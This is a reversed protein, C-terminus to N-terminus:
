SERGLDPAPIARAPLDLAVRARIEGNGGHELLDLVEGAMVEPAMMPVGALEAPVMATQVGGPCIASIRLASGAWALGLSRVLGVVAHKSMAYAVDFPLGALGATSATVCIAGGRDRMAPALARLGLVPGDVNVAMLHHYHRLDLTLLDREALPRSPPLSMVGANLHVFDPAGIGAVLAQWSEARTVDLAVFAGGTARAVAAGGAEDVDAIIPFGGRGAVLRAVAAGIGSAAGTILVRKHEFCDAM